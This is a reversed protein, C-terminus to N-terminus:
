WNWPDPLQAAFKKLRVRRKNMLWLFPITFAVLGVVPAIYLGATDAGRSKLVLWSFTMSVLALMIAVGMLSSPKINCDAQEFLKGMTLFEPTIADLLTQKDKDRMQDKLLLEAASEKRRKGVVSELRESARGGRDGMFVFALAAIMGFIALGAVLPLM